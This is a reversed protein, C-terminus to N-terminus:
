SASFSIVLGERLRSVKKMFVSRVTIEGEASLVYM